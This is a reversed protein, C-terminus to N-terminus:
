SANYCFSIVLYEASLLLLIDSRENGDSSSCVSPKIERLGDQHCTRAPVQAPCKSLNIGAPHNYKSFSYAIIMQQFGILTRLVTSSILTSRSYNQIPVFGIQLTPQLELAHFFDAGQSHAQQRGYELVNSSSDWVQGTAQGSEELQAFWENNHDFNPEFRAGGIFLFCLFSGFFVSIYRTGFVRTLRM